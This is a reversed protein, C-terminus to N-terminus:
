SEKWYEILKKIGEWILHLIYAYFMLWIVLIEFCGILIYLLIFINDIEDLKLPYFAHLTSYVIAPSFIAFWVLGGKIKKLFRILKNIIRM